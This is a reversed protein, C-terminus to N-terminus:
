TRWTPERGALFDIVSFALLEYLGDIAPVGDRGRQVCESAVEAIARAGALTTPEEIRALEAKEQRLIVELEPELRKEDELSGCNAYLAARQRQLALFRHCAAILEDDPGRMRAAIHASDIPPNM